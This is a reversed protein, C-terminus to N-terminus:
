APRFTYGSKWKISSWITDIQSQMLDYVNQLYLAEDVSPMVKMVYYEKGDPTTVYGFLEAKCGSYNPISSDTPIFEISYVWGSKDEYNYKEYFHMNGATGNPKICICNDRRHEPLYMTLFDHKAYYSMKTNPKATGERLKLNLEFAQILKVNALELKSLGILELKSNPVTPYYWSCNMFYEVLGTNTYSYGHRAYIENRALMLQEADLYKLDYPDIEYLDSAPFIIWETHSDYYKAYKNGSSFRVGAKKKACNLLCTYNDQEIETLVTDAAFTSAPHEPTYWNKGSFYLQLADDEFIYGHRAYVENAALTLAKESLDKVDDKTIRTTDTFKLIWGEVDSNIKIYENNSYTGDREMLMARLLLLNVREVPNFRSENFNGAPSDPTYWNKAQFYADLDGDNFTCGYRAYLEREALYLQQRTMSSLESRSYYRTDTASLVYSDADVYFEYYANSSTLEKKVNGPEELPTDVIQSPGPQPQNGGSPKKGGGLLLLAALIGGLIVVIVVAIIAIIPGRNKNGSPPTYAPPTPYAYIQPPQQYGGAPKQTVPTFAVTPQNSTDAGPNPAVPTETKPIAAGCSVCFATGEILQAGCKKCFM